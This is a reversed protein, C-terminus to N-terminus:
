KLTRLYAIVAEERGQATSPPMSGKGKTLVEMIQEDTLALNHLNPGMDGSLDRGHCPLCSSKATKEGLAILELDVTSEVNSNNPQSEEKSCGLLSVTILLFLIITTYGLKYM